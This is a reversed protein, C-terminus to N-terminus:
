YIEVKDGYPIIKKVPLKIMQKPKKRLTKRLFKVIDQKTLLSQAKSEEEAIKCKIVDLKADLVEM